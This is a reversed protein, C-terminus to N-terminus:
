GAPLNIHAGSKDFTMNAYLVKELTEADTDQAVGCRVLGKAQRKAIRRKYPEEDGMAARCKEITEQHFESFLTYADQTQKLAKIAKKLMSPSPPTAIEALEDYPVREGTFAELPAVTEAAVHCDGIAGILWQLENLTPGHAAIVLRVDTDLSWGHSSWVRGDPDVHSDDQAWGSAEKWGLLWPSLTAMILMCDRRFETRLGYKKGRALMRARKEAYANAAPNAEPSPVGPAQQQKETKKTVSAKRKRIIVLGYRVQGQRWEASPTRGNPTFTM